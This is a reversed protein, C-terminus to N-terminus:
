KTVEEGFKVTSDVSYMRVGAAVPRLMQLVISEGRTKVSFHTNGDSEVPIQRTGFPPVQVDFSTSCIPSLQSPRTGTPVSYLGGASYCVSAMAAHEATNILYIVEGPLSAVDGSFWPNRTPYALERLTTRLQDNVVCETVGRVAVVPSQEPLPVNEKVKVWAGTTEEELALKYSGSEGPALRFLIGAHGVLPVLAGTSRHGEVTVFVPRDGLNQLEITSWCHPGYALAPLTSEVVRERPAAAFAVGIRVVLGVLLLLSFRFRSAVM